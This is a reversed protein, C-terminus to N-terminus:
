IPCDGADDQKPAPLRVPHAPNGVDWRVCTDVLEVTVVTPAPWSFRMEFREGRHVNACGRGPWQLRVVARGGRDVVARLTPPDCNSQPGTSVLRVVLGSADRQASLTGPPASTSGHSLLRWHAGSTLSDPTPAGSVGVEWMVGAGIVAVVAAV